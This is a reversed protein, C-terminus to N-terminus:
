KLVNKILKTASDTFTPAMLCGVINQALNQSEPPKDFRSSIINDATRSNVVQKVIEEGAEFIPSLTVKM